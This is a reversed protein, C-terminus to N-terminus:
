NGRMLTLSALSTCTFINEDPGKRCSCLPPALIHRRVLGIDEVDDQSRPFLDKTYRRNAPRGGRARRDAALSGWAGSNMAHSLTRSNPPPSLWYQDGGGGGGTEIRGIFHRFLIKKKKTSGAEQFGVFFLVLIAGLEESECYLTYKKNPKIQMDSHNSM